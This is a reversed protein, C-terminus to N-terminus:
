VPRADPADITSVYTTTSPSTTGLSGLVVLTPLNRHWPEEDVLQSRV